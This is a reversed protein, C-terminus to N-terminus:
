RAFVAKTRAGLANAAEVTAIVAAPAAAPVGDSRAPAASDPRPAAAAAAAPRTPAHAQCAGVLIAMMTVAATARMVARIATPVGRNRPRHRYQVALSPM